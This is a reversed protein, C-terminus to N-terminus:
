YNTFSERWNSVIFVVEIKWECNIWTESKMNLTLHWKQGDECFWNEITCRICHAYILGFLTCVVAVFTSQYVSFFLSLFNEIFGFDVSFQICSMFPHISLALIFISGYNHRVYNLYISHVNEVHMELSYSMFLLLNGDLTHLLFHSHSLNVCVWRARWVGAKSFPCECIWM